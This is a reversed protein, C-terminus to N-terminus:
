SRPCLCQLSGLRRRGRTGRGRRRRRARSAQDGDRVPTQAHAVRVGVQYGGTDASENGFLLPRIARARVVDAIAAATAEPGLGRRRERAPGCLRDGDCAREPAARRGGGSGAHAGDDDRASGCREEVRVGRASLDHLRPLEHRDGARRGHAHDASGDRARAQRLRAAHEDAASAPTRPTSCRGRGPSPSQSRIASAWTSSSCRRGRSQTSLAAPIRAAPAQRGLGSGASTVYSGRGKGDVIREGDPTLIPRSRAHLAQGRELGLPRRGDAHLPAGGAGRRPAAPAGRPRRVRRGQGEASCGPRSSRTSRSSSPASCATARELRGTTGYVGIGAPVLRAAARGGLPREWLAQGQEMPAYLEWGLDGVLDAVGARVRASRSRAAPSSRFGRALRRREHGVLPHRARPGGSASRAGRRRSTSSRRRATRPCTTASGSSTAHGTSAM